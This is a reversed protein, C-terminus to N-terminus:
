VTEQFIELNHEVLVTPLVHVNIAQTEGLLQVSILVRQRLLAHM